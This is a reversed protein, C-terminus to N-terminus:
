GERKQNLRRLQRAIVDIPEPAAESWQWPDVEIVFEDEFPEGRGDTYSARVEYRTPVKANPAMISETRDLVYRLENGPALMSIEDDGSFAKRLAALVPDPGPPRGEGSNEFEPTSVMRIRRAPTRGTNRVLIFAVKGGNGQTPDGAALVKLGLSVEVYPRVSERVAAASSEAARAAHENAKRMQRLQRIAVWAAGVAVLLTAFMWIAQWEAATPASEFNWWNAAIARQGLGIMLM